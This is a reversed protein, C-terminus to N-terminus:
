KGQANKGPWTGDPSYVVPNGFHNKEHYSFGGRGWFRCFIEVLEMFDENFAAVRTDGLLCNGRCLTRCIFVAHTNDRQFLM